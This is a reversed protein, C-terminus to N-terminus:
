PTRPLEWDFDISQGTARLSVARREPLSVIRDSIETVYAAYQEATAAVKVVEDFTMLGVSDKWETKVSLYDRGSEQGDELAKIFSPVPKTAGLVYPHDRADVVSGNIDAYSTLISTPRAGRLSSPMTATVDASSCRTPALTHIGTLATIIVTRDDGVWGMVDFAMRVTTLRSLYESIPVITRGEGNTFKKLGMALDDIHIMAVGAEVFSRALKMCGTLTGFVMDADAVIPQMYDICELAERDEESYRM